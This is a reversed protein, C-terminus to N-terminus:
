PLTPKIQPGKDELHLLLGAESVQQQFLNWDPEAIPRQGYIFRDYADVMAILLTPAPSPLTRECLQALYERNTRTRDTEVLQRNELRSLFQRWTALWAAHWDGARIAEQIEKEYFEPPRVSKQGPADVANGLDLETHRRYIRAIIYIVGVVCLIVMGTLMISAVRSMESVYKFQSMRKGLKFFWQSLMDRFRENVDVENSDHLEPKQLIERYHIAVLAPNTVPAPRSDSTPADDAARAPISGLCGLMALALALLAQKM